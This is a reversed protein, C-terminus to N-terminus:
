ANIYCHKIEGYYVSHFDKKPYLDNIIEQSLTQGDIKNKEVIKCEYILKCEKIILTDSLKGNILTLGFSSAKDLDRGSNTGCDILAKELNKHEPVCVSFSSANEILDHTYRVPRVFVTMMPRTWVVGITAWGITMINSHGKHDKVVLFAGNSDLSKCLDEFYEYFKISGM